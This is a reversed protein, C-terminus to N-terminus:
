AGVGEGGSRGTFDFVLAVGCHRWRKHASTRQFAGFTLCYCFHKPCLQREVCFQRATLGSVQQDAFLSLWEEKSRKIM